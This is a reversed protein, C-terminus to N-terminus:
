PADAPTPVIKSGDWHGIVRGIRQDTIPDGPSLEMREFTFIAPDVAVNYEASLLEWTSEFTLANTVEDFFKYVVKSPLVKGLGETKYESSSVRSQRLEAVQYIEFGDKDSIWYDAEWGGVTPRTTRVHWCDKEAIVAPGILEIKTELPRPLMEEIGEWSGWLIPTAGLTRPDFFHLTSNAKRDDIAAGSRELNNFLLEVGRVVTHFEPPLLVDDVVRQYTIRVDDGSFTVNAQRLLSRVSNPEDFAKLEIRWKQIGSRISLRAERAGKLLAIPDPPDADQSYSRSSDSSLMLISLAVGLRVVVSGRYLSM